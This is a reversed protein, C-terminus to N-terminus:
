ELEETNMRQGCNTVASWALKAPCQYHLLRITRTFDQGRGKRRKNLDSAALATNDTLIGSQHEHSYLTNHSFFMTNHNNELIIVALRHIHVRLSVYHINM